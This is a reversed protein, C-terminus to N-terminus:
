RSLFKKVAVVSPGKITDTIGFLSILEKLGEETKAKAEISYLGKIDELDVQGESLDYQWGIRSFEYSYKFKDLLNQQIFRDAEQRTDFQEKLPIVSNKGIDKVETVKIAVIFEKENWINKPVIRLRLFEDVLTKTTDKPAFIIDHIVYEGKFIAKRVELVEKAKNFNEVFVRAELM